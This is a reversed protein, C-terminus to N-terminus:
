NAYIFGETWSDQGMIRSHIQFGEPFETFGLKGKLREIAARADAETAYVGILLSNGEDEDDRPVFWLLYVTNNDMSLEMWNGVQDTIVTQEVLMIPFLQTDAYELNIGQGNGSKKRESTPGTGCGVGDIDNRVYGTV